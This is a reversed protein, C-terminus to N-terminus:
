LCGRVLSPEPEFANLSQLVPPVGRGPCHVATIGPRHMLLSHVSNSLGLQEQLVRRLFGPPAVLAVRTFREGEATLLAGRLCNELVEESIPCFSAEHRGRFIGSAAARGVPGVPFIADVAWRESIGALHSYDQPSESTAPIMLLRVGTKGEKLKPLADGLHSTDNLLEITAQGAAMPFCLRSIGCNSQQLRQFHEVGLGLATTILARATGGHTVLLISKGAHNTLLDSLFLQARRYLSRVPFAEEGSPFTMRLDYPRLTWAAHQEPFRQKVEAFRLGEWTPLEVERLRADTELSLGMALPRLAELVAQATQVARRLPSCVVSDIGAARLREGSLRAARRGKETLEPEDSCGQYRGELNFTSTGHRLIWVRTLNEATLLM